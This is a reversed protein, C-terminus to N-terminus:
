FLGGMVCGMGLGSSEGNRFREVNQTEVRDGWKAYLRFQEVDVLAVVGKQTYLTVERGTKARGLERPERSMAEWDLKLDQLARSLKKVEDSRNSFSQRSRDNCQACCIPFVVPEEQDGDFGLWKPLAKDCFKFEDQRRCRICWSLSWGGADVMRETQDEQDEDLEVAPVPPHEDTLGTEQGSSTLVCDPEEFPQATPTDYEDVVAEEPQLEDAEPVAEAVEIEIDPSQRKIAWSDWFSGTSPEDERQPMSDKMTFETPSREDHLGHAVLEEYEADGISGSVYLKNVVKDLSQLIRAAKKSHYKM